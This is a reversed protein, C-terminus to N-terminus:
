LVNRVIFLTFMNKVIKKIAIIMLAQPAAAGAAVSAGADVSSGGTLMSGAVSAAVSAGATSDGSIDPGSTM